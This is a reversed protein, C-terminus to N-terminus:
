CFYLFFYSVLMASFFDIKLLLQAYDRCVPENQLFNSAMWTASLFTLAFFIKSVRSKRHRLYVVVGLTLDLILIPFVLAYGINVM